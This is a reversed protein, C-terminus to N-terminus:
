PAVAPYKEFAYAISDTLQQLNTDFETQTGHIIEYHVENKLRCYTAKFHGQAIKKKSMCRNGTTSQKTVTIECDNFLTGNEFFIDRKLSQSALDKSFGAEFSV